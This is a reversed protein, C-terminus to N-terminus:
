RPRLGDLHQRCMTAIMEDVDPWEFTPKAILLSALGHVGAWLVLSTVDPDSGTFLGQEYAETVNEHLSAFAVHHRMEEVTREGPDQNAVMFLIRYQEPHDLAFHVYAFACAQMREVPDDIGEVAAASRVGLADFGRECVSRLLEDKDAFHLYISPPTKGVRDAVARISVADAEGTEDLLELTAELIRDRLRDGEGRKARPRSSTPAPRAV